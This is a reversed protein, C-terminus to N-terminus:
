RGGTAGAPLQEPSVTDAQVFVILETTPDIGRSGLLASAGSVLVVQTDVSVSDVTPLAVELPAPADTMDLEARMDRTAVPERLEAHRLGIELGLLGDPLLATQVDLFVGEQVTDIVPDAVVRDGPQVRKLEYGVVFAQEKSVTVQTDQRPLATLRPATVQQAGADQLAVQLAGATAAELVVAGSGGDQVHTALTGLPATFLVVQVDILTGTRRQEALFGEVWRHQDPSGLVILLDDQGVALDVFSGDAPAFPPDAFLEIMQRLDHAVRDASGVAARLQERLAHLDLSAGTTALELLQEQAALAEERRTLDKVDYLRTTVSGTVATTPDVAVPEAPTGAPLARREGTQGFVPAGLAALTLALLAARRGRAPRPILRQFVM